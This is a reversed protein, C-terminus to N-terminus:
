WPSNPFFRHFFQQPEQLRVVLQNEQIVLPKDRGPGNRIYLFAKLAEDVLVATKGHLIALANKAIASRLSDSNQFIQVGDTKGDSLSIDTDKAFSPETM